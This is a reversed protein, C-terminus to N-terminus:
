FPLTNKNKRQEAYFDLMENQCKEIPNDICGIFDQVFSVPLKDMNERFRLEDYLDVLKKYEFTMKKKHYTIRGQISTEDKMHNFCVDFNEFLNQYNVGEFNYKKFLYSLVCKCIQGYESFLKKVKCESEFAKLKDGRMQFEIRYVAVFKEKLEYYTHYSMGYKELLDLTKDYVRLRLDNKGSSVMNSFRYDDRIRCYLDFDIKRNHWSESYSPFPFGKTNTQECIPLDIFESPSYMVDLAVDLRQFTLRDSYYALLFNVFLISEDICRFFKGGLQITITPNKCNKRPLLFMYFSNNESVWEERYFRNRCFDSRKEINRYFFLYNKIRRLFDNVELDDINLGVYLTDISVRYSM